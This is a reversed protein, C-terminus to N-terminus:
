FVLKFQRLIPPAYIWEETFADTVNRMVCISPAVWIQFKGM